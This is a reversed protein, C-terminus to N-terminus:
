ITYYRTNYECYCFVCTEICSFNCFDCQLINSLLKEYFNKKKNLGWNIM